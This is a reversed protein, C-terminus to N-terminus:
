DDGSGDPRQDHIDVLPVDARQGVNPRPDPRRDRDVVATQAAPQAPALVGPMNTPGLEPQAPPLEEQTPRRARPPITAARVRPPQADAFTRRPAPPTPPSPPNAARRTPARDPVVPAKPVPKPAPKPKTKQTRRIQRKKPKTM